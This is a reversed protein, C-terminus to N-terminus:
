KCRISHYLLILNFTILSKKRGCYVRTLKGLIISSVGFAAAAACYVSAGLWPGSLHLDELTFRKVREYVGFFLAAGVGDMAGYGIAGKYLAAAGGGTNLIQKLAESSTMLQKSSQQTVKITDLPFLLLDTIATSLGGCAMFEKSGLKANVINFWAVFVTLVLYMSVRLQM